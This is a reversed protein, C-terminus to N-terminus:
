SHQGNSTGEPQHQSLYTSIATQSFPRLRPHNALAARLRGVTMPSDLLLRGATDARPDNPFLACFFQLAYTCGDVIDDFQQHGRRDRFPVLPDAQTGFSDALDDLLAALTVVAQGTQEALHRSAPMGDDHQQQAATVAERLRAFGLAAELRRQAELNDILARELGVLRLAQHEGGIGAAGVERVHELTAYMVTYQETCHALQATLAEATPAEPAEDDALDDEPEDIVALGSAEAQAARYAKLYAKFDSTGGGPVVARISHNTWKEGRAEAAAIAADIQQKREDTV